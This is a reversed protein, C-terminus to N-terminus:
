VVCILSVLVDHEEDTDDLLRRELEASAWQIDEEDDDDSDEILPPMDRDDIFAEDDSDPADDDESRVSENDDDDRKVMEVMELYRRTNVLEEPKLDKVLADMSAQMFAYSDKFEVKKLGDGIAFSIYKETNTPIASITGHEKTAAAIILHADYSKLNHFFCPVPISDAVIRYNVNCKPHAAGRYVGTVHCHDCHPPDDFWEFEKECIWCHTASKFQAEQEATLKPMPAATKLWGRVREADAQMRDIFEKACNEGRVLVPPEYFRPDVSFLQYAFGCAEHEQIRTTSSAARPEESDVHRFKSFRLQGDEDRTPRDPEPVDPLATDIPKLISEFDAVFWFPLPLQKEIDTYHMTNGPNDKTPKPMKVAQAKHKVCREMHKELIKASKCSTLCRRCIFRAGNHKSLQKTCLRSLNRILVYHREILLLDVHMTVSVDNPLFESVRLPEIAGGDTITYVNVAIREKREFHAINLPDMPYSYTDFESVYAFYNDVREPDHLTKGYKAALVSWKFSKGDSCQVNVCAKKDAIDKPLKVFVSESRGVHKLLKQLDTILVYHKREGEEVLLLDIADRSNAIESVRLPIIRDDNSIGYVNIALNNSIEFQDIRDLPM